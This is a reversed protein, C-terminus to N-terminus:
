EYLIYEPTPKLALVQAPTMLPGVRADEEYFLKFGPHVSRPRDRMIRRWTKEKEARNGIGDVSLVMAVGKHATIAASDRVIAPNLQHYVIVKQPLDHRQVIGSVYAAVANLEGGTTHGFVRMPVEGPGLAWEPDLALGVDPQELWHRYHKVEDLFSARGPQINLLLMAHHRRAASLYRDVVSDPVRTRYDGDAGPAGQVVTAILELVPMIERGHAYPRARKELESVREDLDGIGLRGLAPAGPSGAYGVLRYRPFVTRGGRPLQPPPPAPTSSPSPSASPSPSGGVGSPGAASPGVATASHAGGASGTPAAGGAAHSCGSVVAGALLAVGATTLRLRWGRAPRRAM